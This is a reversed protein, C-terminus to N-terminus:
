LIHYVMINGTYFTSSNLLTSLTLLPKWNVTYWRKRDPHKRLSSQDECCGPIFRSCTINCVLGSDSVGVINKSHLLQSSQGQRIRLMMEIWLRSVPKGVSSLVAFRNLLKSLLFWRKHQKIIKRRCSQKEKCWGVFQMLLYLERHEAETYSWFAIEPPLLSFFISDPWNELSLYLPLIYVEGALWGGLVSSYFSARISLVLYVSHVTQM